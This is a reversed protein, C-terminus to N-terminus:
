PITRDHLWRGVSPWLVLLPHAVVNHVAWRWLAPRDLVPEPAGGDDWSQDFQIVLTGDDTIRRSTEPGHPFILSAPHELPLPQPDIVDGGTAFGHFCSLSSGEPDIPQMMAERLAEFFPNGDAAGDDLPELHDPISLFAREHPMGLPDSM